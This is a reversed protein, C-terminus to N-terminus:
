FKSYYTNFCFSIFKAHKHAEAKDPPYIEEDLSPVYPVRAIKWKGGLKTGVVNWAPKSESHVVKTEINKIPKKKKFRQQSVNSIHFGEENEEIELLGQKVLSRVIEKESTYHPDTAIDAWDIQHYNHDRWHIANKLYNLVNTEQSTLIVAETKIIEKGM